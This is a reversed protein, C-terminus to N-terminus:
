PRSAARLDELLLEGTAEEGCDEHNPTHRWSRLMRTGEPDLWVVFSHSVPDIDLGYYSRWDTGVPTGGFDLAKLFRRFRMGETDFVWISHCSEM